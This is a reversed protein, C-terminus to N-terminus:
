FRLQRQLGCGWTPSEGNEIGPPGQRHLSEHHLVGDALFAGPKTHITLL